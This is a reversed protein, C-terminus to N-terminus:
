ALTIPTGCAPSGSGRPPALYRHFWGLALDLAEDMAGPEIFDRGAGPIIRLSRPCRLLPELDGNFGVGVPDAGGVLLLTAASVEDLRARTAAPRGARCVLAAVEGGLEAAALLAIAAGTSTAFYGLPLGDLRPHRRAWRTVAVLLTAACQADPAPDGPLPSGRLGPLVVAYGAPPLAAAVRRSRAGLRGGNGGRVLVVVGRPGAPLTLRVPVPAGDVSLEVTDSLMERPRPSEPPAAVDDRVPVDGSM